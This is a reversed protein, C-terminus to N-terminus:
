VDSVFALSAGDPSFVLPPQVGGALKTIQRVNSGDADALYIQPEGDRTSIFALQRGDPSWRPTNESKDGGILLRAASSGDAPVVWIDANRKGTAADTTTRVFAVSRGDPSVQPDSVRVAALLDQIKMPRAAAAADAVLLCGACCVTVMRADRMVGGTHGLLRPVARARLAPGAVPDVGADSPDVPGPVCARSPTKHLLRARSAIKARGVQALAIAAVMGFPHEVIWFRLMPMKMAAGLDHLAGRPIPSLWLFLLLGLAGQIGLATVFGNVVRDDSPSWQAGTSRFVRVLALLALLIVVWRLASHLWLVTPYVDFDYVSKTSTSTSPRYDIDLDRTSPGFAYAWAVVAIPFKRYRSTDM